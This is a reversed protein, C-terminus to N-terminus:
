VLTREIRAIRPLISSNGHFTARLDQLATFLETVRQDLDQGGSGISANGNPGSQSAKLTIGNIQFEGSGRLRM